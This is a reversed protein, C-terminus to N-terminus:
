REDGEGELLPIVSRAGRVAGHQVEATQRQKAANWAVRSMIQTRAAYANAARMGPRKGFAVGPTLEFRCIAFKNRSSGPVDRPAARHRCSLPFCCPSPRFCRNIAAM